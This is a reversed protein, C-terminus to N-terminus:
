REGIGYINFFAEQVTKLSYKEEAICRSVKGMTRALDPNEALVKLAQALAVPDKPPVLLGNTGEVVMQRCGPVDTTVLPLGCSAAELLSKPLGERYSPLCAVDAEGYIIHIDDRRGLYNIYGLSHADVIEHQSMSSINGDDISGVVQLEIALSKEKLWKGAEIYERVGKDLLLRAVLVVIFKSGESGKGPSFLSTDVGAGDVLYARSSQIIQESVFQDKDDSNEFVVRISPLALSFRYTSKVISWLLRKALNTSLSLSGLGTISFVSLDSRVGPVFRQVLGSYLVPKITFAHVIDPGVDRLTKYIEKISLLEKFPNIGKRSLDLFIFNINKSEIQHQEYRDGCAVYVDHGQQKAKEAIHIFHSCFFSSSNVVYLLKM